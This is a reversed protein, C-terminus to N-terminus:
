SWGGDVGLIRCGEVGEGIGVSRYNSPGAQCGSMCLRQSSDVGELGEAKRRRDLLWIRGVPGIGRVRHVVWFCRERSM